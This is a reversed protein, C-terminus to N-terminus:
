AGEITGNYERKAGSNSTVLKGTVVTPAGFVNDWDSPFATVEQHFLDRNFGTGGTKGAIASNDPYGFDEEGIEIAHLPAALLLALLLFRMLYPPAMEFPSRRAFSGGQMM